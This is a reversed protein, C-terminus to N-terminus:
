FRLLFSSFDISKLNIRFSRAHIYYGNECLGFTYRNASQAAIRCSWYNNYDHYQCYFILKKTGDFHIKVEFTLLQFIVPPLDIIQERVTWIYISRMVNKFPKKTGKTSGTGNWWSLTFFIVCNLHSIPQYLPANFNIPWQFQNITIAM